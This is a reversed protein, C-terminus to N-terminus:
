TKVDEQVIDELVALVRKIDLYLPPKVFYGYKVLYWIGRFLWTATDWVHAYIGWCFWRHYWCEHGGHIAIFPCRWALCKKM